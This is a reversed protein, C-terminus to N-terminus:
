NEVSRSQHCVFYIIQYEKSLDSILTLAEKVKKDDLNAFPDDLIVFPKEQNFLVDTLAFRKCVAFMDRYGESYFDTSYSGCNENVNINLDIDIVAKGYSEGTMVSLYKNLSNELPARYKVKLNEDAKKLMSSTLKLLEYEDQYTQLKEKLEHRCSEADPLESISGEYKKIRETLTSIENEKLVLVDKKEKLMARINEVSYESDCSVKLADIETKLSLIKVDLEDIRRVANKYRELNRKVIDLVFLYDDSGMGGFKNKFNVLKRETESLLLATKNLENIKSRYVNDYEENYDSKMKDKGKKVFLAFVGAFIGILCVVIGFIINIFCALIVGSAVLITAIVVCILPLTYDTNKATQVGKIKELEAVGNELQKKESSYNIYRKYNESFDLLENESPIFGGLSKEAENKEREASSKETLFENYLQRKQKTKEAEAVKNLLVTADDYEKQLVNKEEELIRLDNKLTKLTRAESNIREIKEDLELIEAKTDAILGKDIKVYKYRKARDDLKSIINEFNISDDAGYITSYKQALSSNNKVEVDKQSIFVTSLFGDEDIKFIRRGWDDNGLHERGTKLDVLKVTDESSKKGFYRELRYSNEAWEFEVYGGFKGSFDWPMFKKRENSDVNRASDRLGYFMSKIFYTLTTKGWGNDEKVSNLGDNFSVTYDKLKGFSYVYCKILKM